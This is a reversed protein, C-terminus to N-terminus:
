FMSLELRHKIKKWDPNISNLLNYFKTSHNHHKLHCLEHIVVYDICEKPAKILDINLTIGGKESLSGWRKKMRRISLKPKEIDIDKFRKWCRDLTERFQIEAKELYWKYLLKKVITSDIKSKCIIHFFGKFLKVTNVEGRSLKLRYQKGLYLHTEGNIYYREPTKPNFQKFYNLQKIIWRARKIVKQEVLSINSIMPAKVIITSDPYVAIELSKRNCYLLSFRITKEGYSVSYNNKKILEKM